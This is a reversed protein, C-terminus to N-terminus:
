ARKKNNEGIKEALEPNDLLKLIVEVTKQIDNQPVFIGTEGDIIADEVGCDLTGIVPLSCAGAELHVLGFGEFDNNNITTPTLLFIDSQHYLEILREDPLDQLFEINKELNM